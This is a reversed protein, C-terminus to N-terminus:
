DQKIRVSKEEELTFFPWRGSVPDNGSGNNYFIYDTTTISKTISYITINEGNVPRILFHRSVPIGVRELRQQIFKRVGSVPFKSNYEYIFPNGKIDRMYTWSGSEGPAILIHFDIRQWGNNALGNKGGKM